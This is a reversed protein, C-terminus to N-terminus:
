RGDTAPSSGLALESGDVWDAVGSGAIGEIAGDRAEAGIDAVAYEAEGLHTIGDPIADFVGILPLLEDVFQGPAVVPLADVGVDAVADPLVALGVFGAVRGLVVGALEGVVDAGALGVQGTHIGKGILEGAGAIQVVVGAHPQGGVDDVPALYGPLGTGTPKQLVQKIAIRGAIIQRPLPHRAREAVLRVEEVFFVEGAVGILAKTPCARQCVFTGQIGGVVREFLAQEGM